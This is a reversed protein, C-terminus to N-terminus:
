NGPSFRFGVYFHLLLAQVDGDPLFVPHSSLYGTLNLDVLPEM